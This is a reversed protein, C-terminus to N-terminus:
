VPDDANAPEHALIYYDYADGLTFILPVQAPPVSLGAMEETVLILEFAQLSDLGITAYLDDERHYEAEGDLNLELFLKAVYDDFTM